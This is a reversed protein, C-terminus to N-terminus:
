KEYRPTARHLFDLRGPDRKKQSSSVRKAYYRTSQRAAGFYCRGYTGIPTEHISPKFCEAQLSLRLVDFKDEGIVLVECFILHVKGFGVDRMGLEAEWDSDGM